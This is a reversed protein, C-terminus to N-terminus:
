PLNLPVLLLLPIFTCKLPVFVIFVSRMAGLSLSLLSWFLPTILLNLHWCMFQGLSDVQSDPLVNPSLSLSYRLLGMGWCLLEVPCGNLGSQKVITCLSVYPNVLFMLSAMYMWTFSGECLLFKPLYWSGCIKSWIRCSVGTRWSLYFWGKGGERGVGVHVVCEEWGM